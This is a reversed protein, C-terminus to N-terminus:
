FKGDAPNITEMINGAKTKQFKGNIFPDIPFKIKAAIDAYENKSLLDSM